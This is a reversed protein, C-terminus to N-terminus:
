GREFNASGNSTYSYSLFLYVLYFVSNCISIMTMTVVVGYPEGLLFSFIVSLFLFLQGIMNIFQKGSVYFMFSLPFSIFRLFFSPMFIKIYLAVPLWDEGLFFLVLYDVFVFILVTPIFSILFLKKLMNLYLARTNGGQNYTKAVEEKFVDQMSSAVLSIPASLIRQMLFYYGAIAPGFFINFFIHASQHASINMLTAPLDYLPFNKNKKFLLLIKDFVDFSFSKFGCRFFCMFLLLFCALLGVFNGAVLGLSGVFLFGLILNVFATFFSLTVKSISLLKYKKFRNFWVSLAQCLGSLFISIPIFILWESIKDNNFLVSISSGFVLVCFFLFVSVFFCVGLSIVLMLFADNVKAEIIIAQEYRACVVSALITVISLYLAFVGFDEPSYIRTLVPTILIPIIQALAVGFMLTLVNKRFDTKLKM